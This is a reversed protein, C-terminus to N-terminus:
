DKQGKRKKRSGVVLAILAVIGAGAFIFPYVPIEDGTGLMGYLPTGYDFLDVLEELDMETLFGLPTNYERITTGEDEDTTTTIPVLDNILDFGSVRGFYGSVIQESITYTYENGLEDRKPLRMFSYTWGTAASMTARDVVEGNRLLRVTM